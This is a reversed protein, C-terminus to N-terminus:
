WAEAHSVWEPNLHPMVGRKPRVGFERYRELNDYSLFEYTNAGLTKWLSPDIYISKDYETSISDTPYPHAGFYFKGSGWSKNSLHKVINPLTGVQYILFTKDEKEFPVHQFIVFRCDTYLKHQVFTLTDSRLGSLAEVVTRGVITKEFPGFGDSGIVRFSAVISLDDSRTILYEHDIAVESIAAPKTHRTGLFENIRMRLTVPLEYDIVKSIISDELVIYKIPVTM